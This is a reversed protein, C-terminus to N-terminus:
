ELIGKVNVLGESAIRRRKNFLIRHNM